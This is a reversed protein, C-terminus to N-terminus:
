LGKKNTEIKLIELVSPGGGFEFNLIWLVDPQLRIAEEMIHCGKPTYQGRRLRPNINIKFWYEVFPFFNM